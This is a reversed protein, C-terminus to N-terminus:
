DKVLKLCILRQNITEVIKIMKLKEDIFQSM